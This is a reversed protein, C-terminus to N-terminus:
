SYVNYMKTHSLFINIFPSRIRIPFSSTNQTHTHICMYVYLTHIYICVSVCVCVYVSYRCDCSVSFFLVLNEFMVSLRMKSFRVRFRGFILVFALFVDSVSRKDYCNLPLTGPPLFQLYIFFFTAVVKHWVSALPYSCARTAKGEPPFFGTGNAYFAPHTGSGTPVNQLVAFDKAGAPIIM